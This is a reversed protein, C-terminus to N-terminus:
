PLDSYREGLVLIISENVKEVSDEGNVTFFRGSSMYYERLPKTAEHFVRLRNEATTKVDDKRGVLKGGCLDCVGSVKSKKYEVHYIEGCKECLKRGILRKIILM